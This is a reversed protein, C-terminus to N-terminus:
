FNLQALLDDVESQSVKSKAEKKLEELPQGPEKEKAKVLIGTSVYLEAVMDRVKALMDIVRKIRQGTLDQFSLCTMIKVMDESLNQCLSSAKDQIDRDPVSQRVLALLEDPASLNREVLEIIEFTAKETAQIVQDLRHTAEEMLEGAQAVSEPEAQVGTNPGQFASIERYIDGLRGMIEENLNKFFNEGANAPGPLGPLDQRVVERVTERVTEQVAGQVSERVAARIMPACAEALRQALIGLEEPNM